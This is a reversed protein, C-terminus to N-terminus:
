KNNSFFRNTALESNPYKQKYEEIPILAKRAEVKAKLDNSTQKEKPLNVYAKKNKKQKKSRNKKNPYNAKNNKSVFIYTGSKSSTVKDKEIKDELPIERVINYDSKELNAIHFFERVLMEEKSKFGKEVEQFLFNKEGYRKFDYLMGRNCHTGDRLDKLHWNIRNPFNTTSGIYIRGNEINLIRYVVLM